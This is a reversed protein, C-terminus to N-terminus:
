LEGRTKFILRFPTGVFGFSQRLKNELYRQYSFHILKTDNVFFVFTPPNVEAQTAYLLKLQKSGSRPLSRAAVAQQVVSNVLATPLRKLREQYVQCVQPMIKDVGRGFKASTYLIPAYPTFKLQSRIYRNYETINKDAILDWKNVILVIGKAAQQIYGAIHMDQATAPETADLVLLAIDARDIARLARIVSYREVGVGLRGRRRIGATDILLVSQGDFDFLTDIADRTTGPVEDVIAREGGLLTNLLMSKGVNPRGVIAVKMIEPEAEVPSPVPLLVIIRDLLEATGRGHYASIALPEGLGLQYFEVAETELKTNDAKNAVLVIPKSAQRLMDAIELDAPMVGDRVDVLFIIVDAETIAVEAQEKVRQVITFRRRLELGGTDVMIFEVGQWSVSAFIRDRTTGPLDEVIAIPKGAVRNLLTSKGVNQRGIIAVIPKSVEVEM